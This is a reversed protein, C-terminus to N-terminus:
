PTLRRRLLAASSTKGIERMEESTTLTPRRLFSIPNSHEGDPVTDPNIPTSATDPDYERGAKAFSVGSTTSAVETVPITIITNINGSQQSSVTSKGCAEQILHDIHRCIAEDYPSSGYRGPVAFVASTSQDCCKEQSEGSEDLLYSCECSLKQLASQLVQQSQWLQAVRCSPPALDELLHIFEVPGIYGDGTFDSDRVLEPTCAEFDSSSNIIRDNGTIFPSAELSEAAIQPQQLRQVQEAM